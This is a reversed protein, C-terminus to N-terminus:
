RAVEFDQNIYKLIRVRANEYYLPLDKDTPRRDDKKYVPQIDFGSTLGFESPEGGKILGEKGGKVLNRAVWMLLDYGQYANNDPMTFYAAYFKNRFNKYAPHGTNSYTPSSIHVSLSEMYNPNLDNFGTWQPLGFVIVNKNGKDAHLKRLFSSVFQEDNRSYYPMVFVTGDPDDLLFSLNTKALEISQDDIILDETRVAPNKKFSNLRQIETPNNRAVLFVKRNKLEDGIYDMIAEANKGLGPITQLFYPNETDVNFAPLWPSIVIKQNLLGFSAVGEVHDKEYPGIIVDARRLSSENLINSIEFSSGETDFSHITIPLGQSAIESAAIRMGGYYQMFRVLRSDMSSELDNYNKANLPVLLSISYKSKLDPSDKVPDKDTIIPDAKDETWKVTDVKVSGRPVLIYTGSAPDYVRVKDQDAVPPKPDPTPKVIKKQTTCACALALLFCIVISNGNLPLRHSPASTM